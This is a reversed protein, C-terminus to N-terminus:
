KGVEAVTLELWIFSQLLPIFEDLAKEAMGKPGTLVFIVYQNYKDGPDLYCLYDVQNDNIIYKKSAQKYSLGPVDFVEFVVSKKRQSFAQMDVELHQQVTLGDKTLVRIYMLAPSSNFDYGPMRFYINVRNRNADATVGEWGQPETVKFSFDQGYVLLADQASAVGGLCFLFLLTLVAYKVIRM